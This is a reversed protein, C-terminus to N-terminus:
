VLLPLAESPCRSSGTRVVFYVDLSIDISTGHNIVTPMSTVMDIQVVDFIDCAFGKLGTKIFIVYTYCDRYMELMQSSVAKPHCNDQSTIHYTKYVM